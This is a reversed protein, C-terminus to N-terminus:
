SEEQGDLDLRFAILSQDLEQIFAILSVILCAMAAVFLGGILWADELQLAATFFLAIILVASLLVCFTALVIARRLLGARRTLIQLQKSVGARGEAPLEALERGLSRGRDIVRGLRNTMSLILLGVGSILVVPGVAVQLVPILEAVSM